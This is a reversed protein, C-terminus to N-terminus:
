FKGMCVFDVFRGGQLEEFMVNVDTRGHLMHAATFIREPVLVIAKEVVDKAIGVSLEIFKADPGQYSDNGQVGDLFQLKACYLVEILEACIEEPKYVVAAVQRVSATM